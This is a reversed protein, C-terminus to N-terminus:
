ERGSRKRTRALHATIIAGAQLDPGHEHLAQTCVLGQQDTRLNVLRIIGCHPQSHLIALAGFDKDLTVLIRQEEWARRLIQEDGPDSQDGVWAVEHGAAELQHKLKGSVCSDLLIKV